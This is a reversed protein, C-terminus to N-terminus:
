KNVAPLLLYIKPPKRLPENKMIFRVQGHEDKILFFYPDVAETWPEIRWGAPPEVFYMCQDKKGLITIGQQILFCFSPEGRFANMYRPLEWVVAGAPPIIPPTKYRGNKGKKITCLYYIAICILFFVLLGILSQQATISFTLLIHMFTMKALVVAFKQITLYNKM